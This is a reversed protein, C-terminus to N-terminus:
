VWSVTTGGLTHLFGKIIKQSDINGSWNADVFDQLEICSQIHLVGWSGWM